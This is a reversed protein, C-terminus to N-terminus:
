REANQYFIEYLAVGTAVALNLSDSRGAMPISVMADCAAQEAPSLGERESGMLLALPRPFPFARLDAPADDSTGILACRQRRAWAVLDAFTARVLRQAFVAGMSARLAAPDYPDSSPGLLIVGAAGVADCTRLITGLNGPDAVASLAVWCLGEAARAADLPLWRQRVVAGLGQPGEKRSLSEFVAAGVELVAGGAARRAEVLERGFESALLEPAVVLQEVEAGLQVAEGVLRIGEVFCLGSREREKRERLARIQKIAPNATSTIM